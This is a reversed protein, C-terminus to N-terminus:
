LIRHGGTYVNFRSDRVFGLLTLDCEEALQVALNSPAGVAALVPIGAHAAKQVLEFSARGSVLLIKDLLPVKDKLLEAGIVKDLANHRGVDERTAYLEGDATFLCSAHVGGTQDFDAQQARLTAPLKHILEPSLLPSDHLCIHRRKVRVADISRKGCVGCSSAVFSHRAFSNEEIEVTDKLIVTVVNCKPELVEEIDGASTIIGETFLFGVALDRDDGPTRMTVAIAHSESHNRSGLRIELPEEASLWDCSTEASSGSFKAVQWKRVSVTSEQEPTVEGDSSCSNKEQEPKIRQMM